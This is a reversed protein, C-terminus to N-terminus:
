DNEPATAEMLWAVASERDLFVSHEVNSVASATSAFALLLLRESEDSVLLANRAGDGRLQGLEAGKEAVKPFHEARFSSIRAGLFNWLARKRPTRSHFDSSVAMIEVASLDGVGVFEVLDGHDRVDITM